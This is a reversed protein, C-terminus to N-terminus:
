SAQSFAQEWESPSPTYVTRSKTNAAPCQMHNKVSCPVFGEKKSIISFTKVDRQLAEFLATSALDRSTSGDIRDTLSVQFSQHEFDFLNGELASQFERNSNYFPGGQLQGTRVITYDFGQEAACQKLTEEIEYWKGIKLFPNFKFLLEDKRDVGVRSMMVVKELGQIGGLFYRLQQSDAPDETAIVLGKVVPLQDNVLQVGEPVHNPFGDIPWRLPSKDTFGPPVQVVPKFSNDVLVKTVCIGTREYAPVVAVRSGKEVSMRLCTRTSTPHLMRSSPAVQMFSEAQQWTAALLLLAVGQRGQM